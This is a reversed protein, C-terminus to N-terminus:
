VGRRLIAVSSFLTIVATHSNICPDVNSFAPLDTLIYMYYTYIHYQIYLDHIVLQIYM